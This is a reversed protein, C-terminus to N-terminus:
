MSQFRGNEVQFTVQLCCCGMGFGMADMYIHDPKANRMAQGDDGMSKYDETFPKPTNEDRFIPVNIVVKEGRRQRINRSLNKFRPHGDFIAKDPFFLSHSIGENPTPSYSPFTFDPCGMRPFNGITLLVEDPGLYKSAEQRRRRMNEEVVNFCPLVGGYPRGLFYSLCHDSYNQITVCM